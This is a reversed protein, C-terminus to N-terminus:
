WCDFEKNSIQQEHGKHFVGSYQLTYLVGQKGTEQVDWQGTGMGTCHSYIGNSEVGHTLNM